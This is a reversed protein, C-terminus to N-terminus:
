PQPEYAPQLELTRDLFTAVEDAEWRVTHTRLHTDLWTAAPALERFAQSPERTRAVTFLGSLLAVAAGTFFGGATIVFATGLGTEKTDRILQTLVERTEPDPTGMLRKGTVLVASGFRGHAAVLEETLAVLAKAQGQSPPKWHVSAVLNKHHAILGGDDHHRLTPRVSLEAM